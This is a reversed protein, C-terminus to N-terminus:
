AVPEDIDIRLQLDDRPERGLPRERGVAQRQGHLQAGVGLEMVALAEVGLRGLGIDFPRHGQRIRQAFGLEGRDLADARGISRRQDELQLARVGRQEGLEGVAGAHHQRRLAEPGVDRGLRDAGAGVLEDLADLVVADHEVLELPVPFGVLVLEVTDDVAGNGVGGDAKGVQAGALEVHQLAQRWGIHFRRLAVLAQLDLAGRIEAILADGDVRAMGVGGVLRHALVLPHSLGQREGDVALHQALHHEFPEVLRHILGEIGAVLIKGGCQGHRRAVDGLGLRQELFGTDGLDADLEEDGVVGTSAWSPWTSWAIACSAPMSM